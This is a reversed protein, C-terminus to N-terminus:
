SENLCNASTGYIFFDSRMMGPKSGAMSWEINAGADFRRGRCGEEASRDFPWPLLSPLLSQPAPVLVIADESLHWLDSATGGTERSYFLPGLSPPFIAALLRQSRSCRRQKVLYASDWCVLHRDVLLWM